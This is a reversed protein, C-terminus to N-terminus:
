SKRNQKQISFYSILFHVFLIFGWGLAMYGVWQVQDRFFLYALLLAVLIVIIYLTAHTRLTSFSRKNKLDHYDVQNNM